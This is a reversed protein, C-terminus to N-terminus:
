PPERTPRRRPGAPGRHGPLFRSATTLPDLTLPDLKPPDLKPPRPRSGRDPRAPGPMSRIAPDQWRTVPNPEPEKIGIM